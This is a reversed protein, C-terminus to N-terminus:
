LGDASSACAATKCATQAPLPWGSQPQEFFSMFVARVVFDM